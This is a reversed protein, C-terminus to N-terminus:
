PGRVVAATFRKWSFYAASIRAGSPRVAPVPKAPGEVMLFIFSSLQAECPCVSELAPADAEMFPRADVGEGAGVGTGAGVGEFLEPCVPDAGAAGLLGFLGVVAAFPGGTKFFLSRSAAEDKKGFSQYDSHQEEGLACGRM